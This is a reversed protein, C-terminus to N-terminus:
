LASPQPKGEDHEELSSHWAAILLAQKVDDIEVDAIKEWGDPVKVALVQWRAMFELRSRMNRMHQLGIKFTSGEDAEWAEEVAANVAKRGDETSEDPRYDAQDFAEHVYRARLAIEAQTIGQALESWRVLGGALQHALRDLAYGELMTPSRWFEFGFAESEDDNWNGSKDLWKAPREISAALKVTFPPVAARKM